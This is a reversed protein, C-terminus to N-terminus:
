TAGAWPLLTSHRHRNRWIVLSAWGTLLLTWFLISGELAAWLSIVSFFPPTTTANNHAVYLVSFDHTLLLVVMVLSALLTLGCSVYVARRASSLLASDTRRAGIVFAFTAYVSMALGAVIAAHGLDPLM